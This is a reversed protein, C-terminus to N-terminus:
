HQKQAKKKPAKGAPAGEEDSRSKRKKGATASQTTAQADLARPLIPVNKEGRCAEFLEAVAKKRFAEPGPLLCASRRCSRRAFAEPVM